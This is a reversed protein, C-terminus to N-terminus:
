SPRIFVPVPWKPSSPMSMSTSRTFTSGAIYVPSGPSSQSSQRTILQTLQAFPEIRHNHCEGQGTRVLGCSLRCCMHHRPLDLFSLLQANPVLYLQTASPSLSVIQKFHDTSTIDTIMKLIDSVVFTFIQLHPLSSCAYLVPSLSLPLHQTFIFGTPLLWM